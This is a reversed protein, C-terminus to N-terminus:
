SDPNIPLQVIVTSGAGKESEMWINGHHKDIIKKCIALGLGIGSRDSSSHLRELPNFIRELFRANVGVGNDEFLLEWYPRRERAYVKIVPESESYLLGNRLLKEFVVELLDSDAYVLPLSDVLVKGAKNQIDTNVRALVNEMVDNLDVFDCSAQKLGVQMYHMLGQALANMQTANVILLELDALAADDLAQAYDEKFWTAIAQINRLPAKVDHVLVDSFQLLENEISKVTELSKVYAASDTLTILFGAGNEWDFEEVQMQLTISNLDSVPIEIDRTEGSLLPYDFKQGSLSEKNGHLLKIACTNILQIVGSADVVIVGNPDREVLRRFRQESALLKAQLASTDSEQSESM